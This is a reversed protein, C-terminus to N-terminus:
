SVVAGVKKRDTVFAAFRQAEAETLHLHYIAGLNLDLKAERLRLKAEWRVTVQGAFVPGGEFDVL